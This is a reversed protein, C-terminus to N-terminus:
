CMICNMKRHIRKLQRFGRRDANKSSDACPFINAGAELVEYTDNVVAWGVSAVGIDLAFRIEM